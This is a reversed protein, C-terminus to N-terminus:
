VGKKGDCLAKDIVLRSLSSLNAERVGFYDCKGCMPNAARDNEYLAARVKQFPAGNWIDLLSQEAVNGMVEEFFLDQCCKSVRGDTTINFQTFPYRCFGLHRGDFGDQKNPASGARNNLVQTERRRFVNFYFVRREKSSAPGSGSQIQDKGFFKPLTEQRVRVLRKPLQASFDNDYHNVTLEDIGTEILREAKRPSLAKGNTLVQLYAAPLNERAHRVYKELDPVLLPDNNVHYAVRGSFNIEKLQGIVKAYLDFSMTTDPRTENHISAACFSCKGNCRTRLEFFVSDFMNPSGDADVYHRRESRYIRNILYDKAVPWVMGLGKAALTRAIKKCNRLITIM